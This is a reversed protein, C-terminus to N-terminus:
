GVRGVLLDACATGTVGLRHADSVIRGFDAIRLQDLIKPPVDIRGHLILLEAIAATLVAAPNIPGIVAFSFGDFVTAGSIQLYYFDGPTIPSYTQNLVGGSGAFCGLPLLANCNNGNYLSVNPNNLVDALSSINLVLQTGTAQFRYWVDTAPSACGVVTSYPNEAIAGVNTLNFSVTSGTSITGGTVCPAPAPLTGLNCASICIDPLPSVCVSSPPAPTTCTVYLPICVANNTCFYQDVLVWLTGSFTATWTVTSQLGCADDNYGLAGGGTSNYITIQSDFSTNGCTSFTYVGGVTVPIAVYQGGRICATITEQAGTCAPTYSMLLTNDNACQGAVKLHSLLLLLLGILLGHKM